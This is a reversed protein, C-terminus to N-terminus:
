IAKIIPLGMVLFLLHTVASRKFTKVGVVQMKAEPTHRTARDRHFYIEIFRKVVLCTIREFELKM